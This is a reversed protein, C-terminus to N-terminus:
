PVQLLLFTNEHTIVCDLMMRCNLLAFTRKIPWINPLQMSKSHVGDNRKKKSALRLAGISWRKNSDIQWYSILHQHLLGMLARLDRVRAATKGYEARAQETKALEQRTRAERELGAQKDRHYQIEMQDKGAGLLLRAKAVAECDADLADQEKQRTMRMNRLRSVLTRNRSEAAQAEMKAKEEATMASRARRESNAQKAYARIESVNEMKRRLEAVREIKMQRFKERAAEEKEQERIKNMRLREQLEVLSMENLLGIPHITILKSTGCGGCVVFLCVCLGIGSSETPDFERIYFENKPARELARIQRILDNRIELEAKDELARIRRKEALEKRHEETKKIKEKLLAEAARKPAEFEVEKVAAALQAKELREKELEAELQEARIQADKRHQIATERKIQTEKEMAKAARVASQKMDERLEDVRALKALEDQREMDTKWQYFQSSDRLDEEYQKLVAAEKAQKARYLADERMIAAATMRVQAPKADFNPPAKAKFQKKLEAVENERAEARMADIDVKSEALKFELSAPYKAATAAATAQKRDLKQKEIESLSNRYTSQPVPRLAIKAEIRIPEPLKVPTPKHLNFPKPVTVKRKPKKKSASQPSDSANNSETAGPTDGFAEAALRALLKQAQPLHREIRDLLVDNVYGMDLIKGWEEVVWKDLMERSFMYSLIPHMKVAGQSRIIQEYVPFTLEDLRFFTLYAIITYLTADNRSAKSGNNFYFSNIVIKLVAKYRYTGYLVQKLFLKTPDEIEDKNDLDLKENAYADVNSVLEDFGNILEQANDLLEQYVVHDDDFDRGHQEPGQM